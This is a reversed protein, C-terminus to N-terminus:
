AAKKSEDVGIFQHLTGKRLRDIFKSGELPSPLRQSTMEMLPKRAYGLKNFTRDKGTKIEGGEIVIWTHSGRYGDKGLLYRDIYKNGQSYETLELVFPFDEERLSPDPEAPVALTIRAELDRSISGPEGAPPFIWGQHSSEFLSGVL